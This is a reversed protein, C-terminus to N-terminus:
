YSIGLPKVYAEYIANAWDNHGIGEYVTKHAKWINEPTAISNAVVRGDAGVINMLEAEIRANINVGEFILKEGNVGRHWKPTLAVSIIRHMIM